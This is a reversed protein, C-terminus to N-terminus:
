CLHEAPLPITKLKRSDNAAIIPVLLVPLMVQNRMIAWAFDIIVEYLAM